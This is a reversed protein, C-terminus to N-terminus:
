RSAISVKANRRRSCILSRSLSMSIRAQPVLQQVQCRWLRFGVNVGVATSDRGRGASAVVERGEGEALTLLALVPSSHGHLVISFGDPATSAAELTAPVSVHGQFWGILASEEFMATMLLTRLRQQPSLSPLRHAARLYLRAVPLTFRGTMSRVAAATWFIRM